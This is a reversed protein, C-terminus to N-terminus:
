NQGNKKGNTKGAGENGQKGNGKNPNSTTTTTPAPPTTGPPETTTTGEDPSEARSTNTTAPLPPSVADAITETTNPTPQNHPRGPVATTPSAAVACAAAALALATLGAPVARSHPRRRFRSLKTTVPHSVPAAADSRGETTANLVEACQAATPRTEPDQATMASLLAQWPAPLTGPVRPPRSLRALATEIATGTYETHGTLCELLLLGLAYIDAPPGTDVDTIQEPAVYAATGVFEGSVTLHAASLARALGFDTLHCAGSADVLVNSPKIDRHVVDHAHLYALVDALQTGIRAVAPPDFPGRDLLDRLTPGKVLRMVLFPEDGDLGVDYVTVLRPHSLGALLRAEAAFRYRSAANGDAQYLKVAVPRGLAVDVAEHVRGAGGRGLLAGLRYRDGLLRDHVTSERTDDLAV